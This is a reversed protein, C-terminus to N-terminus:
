KLESSVVATTGVVKAELETAVSEYTTDFVMVVAKSDSVVATDDTVTEFLLATGVLYKVAKCIDLMSGMEAISVDIFVHISLLPSSVSNDDSDTVVTVELSTSPTSVESMSYEVSIDDVGSAAEDVSVMINGELLSSKTLETAMDVVSPSTVDTRVVSSTVVRTVVVVSVSVVEVSDTLVVVAGESRSTSSIISPSQSKTTAVDSFLCLNM